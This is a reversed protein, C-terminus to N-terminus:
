FLKSRRHLMRKRRWVLLWPEEVTQYWRDNKMALNKERRESCNEKVYYSKLPPAM